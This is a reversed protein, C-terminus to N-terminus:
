SPGRVVLQRDLVELARRDRQGVGAADAGHVRHRAEHRALARDDADAGEVVGGLPLARAVLREVAVGDALDDRQGRGVVVPDDLAGLAAVEQPDDVLQEEAVVAEVVLDELRQADGVLRDAPDLVDVGRVVVVDVLDGAHLLEDVGVAHAAVEHGVGVRELVLLAPVVVEVDRRVAQGEPVEVAGERGAAEAPRGEELQALDEADQAVGVAARAADLVHVDLVGVLALPDLVLDLPGVLLGAAVLLHPDHSPEVGGLGELGEQLRLEDALLAERELAALGDDGQEVADQAAGRAVVEVLHADTHRVSAPEVHEGVDGALGVALDEALELALLVRLRDLAGAVHLVVEAGLALEDGLVARM